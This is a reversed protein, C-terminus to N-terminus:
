KGEGSVDQLRYRSGKSHADQEVMIQWTGFVRDKHNGLAIGLKIKFRHVDEFDAIDHFVTGCLLKHSRCMECLESATVSGTQYNMAWRLVFERWELSSSRPEVTV